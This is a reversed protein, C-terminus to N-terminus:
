KKELLDKDFAAALAPGSVCATAPESEHFGLHDFQKKQKRLGCPGDSVEISPVLFEPLDTTHWFDKGSLLSIKQEATLKQLIENATM